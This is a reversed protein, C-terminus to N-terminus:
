PMLPPRGIRGGYGFWNSVHWNVGEIELIVTSVLNKTATKRTFWCFLLSASDGSSLTIATKVYVWKTDVFPRYARPSPLCKSMKGLPFSGNLVIQTLWCHLSQSSFHKLYADDVVQFFQIIFTTYPYHNCANIESHGDMEATAWLFTYSLTKMGLLKLHFNLWLYLLTLYHFTELRPSPLCKSM